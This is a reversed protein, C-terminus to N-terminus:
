FLTKCNEHLQADANFSSSTIHLTFKPVTNEPQSYLFSETYATDNVKSKSVICASAFLAGNYMNSLPMYAIPMHNVSYCSAMSNPSAKPGM